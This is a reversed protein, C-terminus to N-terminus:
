KLKHYETLERYQKLEHLMGNYSPLNENKPIIVWLARKHIPKFPRFTTIIYSALPFLKLVTERLARDILPEDDLHFEFYDFEPYTTVWRGVAPKSEKKFLDTSDMVVYGSISSVTNREIMLDRISVKKTVKAELYEPSEFYSMPDPVKYNVLQWPHNFLVGLHFPRPWKPLTSSNFLNSVAGSTLGTVKSIHARELNQLKACLERRSNLCINNMLTEWQEKCSQLILLEYHCLDLIKNRAIVVESNVPNVGQITNMYKNYYDHVESRNTKYLVPDFAMNDDGIVM